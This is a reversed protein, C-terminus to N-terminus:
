RELVALVEAIAYEAASKNEKCTREMLIKFEAKSKALQNQLLNINKKLNHNSNNGDNQCVIRSCHVLSERLTDFNKTISSQLSAAGPSQKDIKNMSAIQQM